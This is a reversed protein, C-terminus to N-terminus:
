MQNDLLKLEAKRKILNNLYYNYDYMVQYDAFFASNVSQTAQTAYLIASDIDGILECVIAINMQAYACTLKAKASKGTTTEALEKWIRIAGEFNKHRVSDMGLQLSANKNLYFYRDEKDWRPLLREVTNRGSYISLDIMADTRSPLAALADRRRYSLNEWSLSDKITVSEFKDKDPYHVSWNLISKSDLAALYEGSELSYDSIEDQIVLRNLAVVADVNYLSCLEQIQESNLYTLKHFDNGLNQSEELLTVSEFFGIGSMTEVTGALCYLIASDSSLKIRAPQQYMLRTTHGYVAPQQPANNLILVDNVDHPFTIKGPRLVDLTLFMKQPSCSALLLISIIFIIQNRKM